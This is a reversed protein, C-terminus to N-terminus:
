VVRLIVRGNLFFNNRLDIRKFGKCMEVIIYLFSDCELYDYEVEYVFIFCMYISNKFNEFVKYCLYKLNRYLWM